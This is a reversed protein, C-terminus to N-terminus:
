LVSLGLLYKPTDKQSAAIKKAKNTAKRVETTYKERFQKEITPRQTRALERAEMMIKKLEQDTAKDVAETISADAGAMVTALGACFGECLLDRSQAFLADFAPNPPM